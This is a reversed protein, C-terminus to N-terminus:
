GAGARGGARAVARGEAASVLGAPGASAGGVGGGVCSGPGTTKMVAPHWGWGSPLIESRGGQDCLSRRVGVVPAAPSMQM